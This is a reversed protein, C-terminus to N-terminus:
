DTEQGLDAVLALVGDMVTYLGCQTTPAHDAKTYTLPPTLGGTEFEVFTELAAKLGPGNPNGALAARKLGEALVLMSAWGLNYHFTYRSDGAMTLVNATEPVNFGFPRAAMFGYARSAAEVSLQPVLREDLGWANILFQTSLSLRDADKLVTELSPSTVGVWAYDPNYAKMALLEESTDTARLDIVVDPGVDLGLERAKAKGFDIPGVSYPHESYIFCVKKASKEQAYAMALGIHENYNSSTTFNYPHHAPESLDADGDTSLYVVQDRAVLKRLAWTDAAGWGLVAFVKNDQRLQRYLSIAKDPQSAYDGSALRLLIGGAGGRSNLYAVADEAGQAYSGGIVGTPGTLDFIGGIVVEPFEGDVPADHVQAAAPYGNLGFWISVLLLLVLRQGLKRMLGTRMAAKFLLPIDLNNVKEGQVKYGRGPGHGLWNKIWFRCALSM